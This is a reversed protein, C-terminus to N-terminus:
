ENLLFDFVTIGIKIRFTCCSIRSLSSLKEEVQIFNGGTYALLCAKLIYFLRILLDGERSCFKM